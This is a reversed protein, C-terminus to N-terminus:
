RGGRAVTGVERLSGIRGRRAIGITGGCENRTETGVSMWWANGRGGGMEETCLKSSVAGVVFDGVVGVERLVEWEGASSVGGGSETADSGMGKATSAAVSGDDDCAMPVGEVALRPSRGRVLVPRARDSDSSEEAGEAVVSGVRPVFVDHRHSGGTDASRRPQAPGLDLRSHIGVSGRPCTQRAPWENGEFYVETGEGAMGGTEGRDVGHRRGMGGFHRREDM